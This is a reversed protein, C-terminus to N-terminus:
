VTQQLAKKLVSSSIDWTSGESIAPMVPFDDASVGNITSKYQDASIHLKHDDLELEIIGSPLSNVFDQMLRAPVTISGEKTIKSGIFHTIGIDLNTAAVSLRNDVTRLLVNGLIPLANRTNAIRAVSGLAKNLNEQTVQLKM